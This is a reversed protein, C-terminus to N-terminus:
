GPTGPAAPVRLARRLYSTRAAVTATTIEATPAVTDYGHFGGVWAHLEVPVGARGLRAAYDIDEDRFVDVSGVEVYAPPLGSLDTARAPAAYPSVDPGGRDRAVLATAAALGGGSKGYVFLRAPDVGLEDAHEVIWQLGSYAGEVLAPHPHEPGVPPSIVVLVLGLETVWDLEVDSAGTGQLIKGGNATHHLCPLPGTRGAPRLVLVPMEPAGEPGPIRRQEIEVTGGRRLAEDSPTPVTARFAPIGEATLGIGMGMGVVVPWM